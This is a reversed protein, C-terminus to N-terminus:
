RSSIWAFHPGVILVIQKACIASCQGSRKEHSSSSPWQVSTRIKLLCTRTGNSLAVKNPESRFSVLKQLLTRWHFQKGMNKSTIHKNKVLTELPTASPIMQNTKKFCGAHAPNAADFAQIARWRRSKCASYHRTTKVGTLDACTDNSSSAALPRLSIHWYVCCGFISSGGM